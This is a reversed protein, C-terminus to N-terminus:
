KAPLTKVFVKAKNIWYTYDKPNMKNGEMMVWGKMPRGTIDFPKSYPVGMAEEYTDIGLRLILYEKYVGVLMNGNMMFGIGGFMKKSTIGSWTKIVKVIQSEIETNYAM